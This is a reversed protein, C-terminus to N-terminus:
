KNMWEKVEKSKYRSVHIYECPLSSNVTLRLKRNELKTYESIANKQVLYQRNARFFLNAPLVQVLEEMSGYATALQKGDLTYMYVIGSRLKFFAIASYKTKITRRGSPVLLDSTKSPKTKVTSVLLFSLNEIIALFGIVFLGIAFGYGSFRDFIFLQIVTYIFSVTIFNIGIFKLTKNATLMDDTFIRDRYILTIAWSSSCVVVGIGLLILFSQLPFYYNSQFPFQRSFIHAFSFSIFTVIGYRIAAMKWGIDFIGTDVNNIRM